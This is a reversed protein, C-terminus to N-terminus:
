LHGSDPTDCGQWSKFGQCSPQVETLQSPPVSMSTQSVPLFPQKVLGCKM